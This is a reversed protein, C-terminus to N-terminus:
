SRDVDKIASIAAALVLAIQLTGAVAGDPALFLVPVAVLCLLLTLVSM